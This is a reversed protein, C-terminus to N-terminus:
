CKSTQRSNAQYRSLNSKTGYKRRKKGQRRLYEKLKPHRDIYRYITMHSTLGFTGAIQEPSLDKKLYKKVESKLDQDNDIVRKDTKLYQRREKSKKNARRADYINDSNRNIERSITTRHFGLEKAIEKNTHKQRLM